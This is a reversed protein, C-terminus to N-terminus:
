KILRMARVLTKGEAKLRYYYVGSAVRRGAQDRGNWTCSHVGPPQVVDVLTRVLQGAVNYVALKVPGLTSLEYRLTTNASFPNPLNPYIRTEYNKMRLEDNGAVGGATCSLVNSFHTEFCTDAGNVATVCYYWTEGSNVDADDYMTDTIITTNVRTFPGTSEAGRYLNCGAITTDTTFRNWYARIMSNGAKVTTTLSALHPLSDYWEKLVWNDRDLMVKLAPASDAVLFDGALATSVWVTTDKWGVSTSCALQLPMKYLEGTTSTQKIKVRAANSDPKTRYYIATTYKPHGARHVWENFFWDLSDGYHHEAIRQFESTVANGYAFSDVYARMMPFFLSDGMVWRLGQLVWAGKAYVMSYNFLLNPPPDYIPYLNASDSLASSFRQKMYNGPVSDKEWEYHVAELYSAFGENLWIDAWAGCTVMDGFWMHALEHVVGRQSNGTIWSRHITTMTQHEMGGYAFPYVAAMGYKSFPYAHFLSDFLRVMGPVTAFVTNSQISDEPWIFYNLPVAGANITHATDAWFAYKSATFCILYTAIPSPEAWHWTLKDNSRITDQFLGNAAVSFSDPVTVYLACGSDAKDWPEDFCPMWCRADQPETMTYAVAHLTGANYGKPYWYYGRAYYGNKIFNGGRYFIDLTFYQGAPISAVDVKVCLTDATRAFGTTDGDVKVSDIELRVSNLIISDVGPKKVASMRVQGYLSDNTFPLDIRLTYHQVDYEHASDFKAPASRLPPRTELADVAFACSAYLLAALVLLSRKM